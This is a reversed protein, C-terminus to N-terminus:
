NQVLKLFSLTALADIQVNNEGATLPNSIKPACEGFKAHQYVVDHCELFQLDNKSGVCLKEQLPSFISKKAVSASLLNLVPLIGHCGAPLLFDFVDHQLGHFVPLFTVRMFGRFCAHDPDRSM